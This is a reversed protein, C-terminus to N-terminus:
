TQGLVRRALKLHPMDLMKGDLSVAGAGGGQEFAEIVRSAYDIEEASPTFAENIVPVQRPHIALKGSFGDMRAGESSVRLGEDDTFDAFLTDIAEVSAAHAAFLCFTRAVKYAFAWSGDPMRSRTAGMASSLDEGGWTVGFLREGVDALGGLDFMIQPTETAVPMFRITGRGLGERVELASLMNDLTVLDNAAFIKPVIIGDPAGRLIATLDELAADTDMPNIRVWREAEGDGRPRALAELVMAHAEGRRDASVADELDFILADAGVGWSKAIKKESDGPVFLFSRLM